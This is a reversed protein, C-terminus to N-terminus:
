NKRDEFFIVSIQLLKFQDIKTHFNNEYIQIQEKWIKLNLFIQDKSILEVKSVVKEFNKNSLDNIIEQINKSIYNKNM